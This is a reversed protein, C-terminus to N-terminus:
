TTLLSFNTRAKRPRSAYVAPIYAATHHAQSKAQNQGSSLSIVLRNNYILFNFILGLVSIACRAPLAGM